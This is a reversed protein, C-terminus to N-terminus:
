QYMDNHGGPNACGDQEDLGLNTEANKGDYTWGINGGM